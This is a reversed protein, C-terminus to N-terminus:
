VKECVAVNGRSEHVEVKTCTASKRMNDVKDMIWHAINEATPNFDLLENLNGHDLYDHIEKKILAFDLVMGNELDEQLCSVTVYVMWNHGHNNRCKSEYPLDLHHMGAIEMEKTVTYRLDGM